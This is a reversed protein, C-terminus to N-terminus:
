LTCVCWVNFCGAYYYGNVKCEHRAEMVKIKEGRCRRLYADKQDKEKQSIVLRHTLIRKANALTGIKAIFSKKMDNMQTNSRVSLTLENKTNTVNTQLLANEESLADIMAQKEGNARTLNNNVEQLIARESEVVRLNNELHEIKEQLKQLLESATSSDQDSERMAAHADNAAGSCLNRMELRLNVMMEEMSELRGQQFDLKLQMAQMKSDQLNDKETSSQTTCSGTEQSPVNFIYQCTHDSVPTELPKILDAQDYLNRREQEQIEYYSPIEVYAPQENQLAKNRIKARRTRSFMEDDENNNLGSIIFM